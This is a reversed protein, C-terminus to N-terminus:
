RRLMDIPESEIFESSNAADRLVIRASGDKVVLAATLIDATNEPPPLKLPEPMLFIEGDIRIRLKEGWIYLFPLTFHPESLEAEPQGAHALAIEEDNGDIDTLCLSVNKGFYRPTEARRAELLKRGQEMIHRRSETESIELFIPDPLLPDSSFHERVCYDAIFIDAMSGITLIRVEDLEAPQLRQEVNEFLTRYAMRTGAFAQDLQMCSVDNFATVDETREAQLFHRYARAAKRRNSLLEQMDAGCVSALANEFTGIGETPAYTQWLLSIEGKGDCKLLGATCEDLNMVLLKGTYGNEASGDPFYAYAAACILDNKSMDNM